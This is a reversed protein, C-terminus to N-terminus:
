DQDEPTRRLTVTIRQIPDFGIIDRLLPGLEEDQRILEFAKDRDKRAQRPGVGRSSAVIEVIQASINEEREEPNRVLRALQRFVEAPGEDLTGARTDLASSTEGIFQEDAGSNESAFLDFYEVPLTLENRRYQKRIWDRIDGAIAKGMYAFRKEVMYELIEVANLGQYKNIEKALLENVLSELEDSPIQWVKNYVVSRALRNLKRLAEGQIEEDGTACGMLFTGFRLNIKNEVLKDYITKSTAFVVATLSVLLDVFESETGPRPPIKKIADLLTQAQIFHAVVKKGDDKSYDLLAARRKTEQWWASSEETRPPSHVGLSVEKRAETVSVPHENPDTDGPIAEGYHDNMERAARRVAKTEDNM